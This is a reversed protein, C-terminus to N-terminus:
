AGETSKTALRALKDSYHQEVLNVVLMAMEDRAEQRVDIREGPRYLALLYLPMNLDRFLYAFRLAPVRRSRKIPWRLIRIGATGPIVDGAEPHLALYQKLSEHDEEQLVASVDTSYSPLEAITIPYIPTGLM